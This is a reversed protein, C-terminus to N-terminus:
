TFKYKIKNGTKIGRDRNEKDLEAKYEATLKKRLELLDPIDKLVYTRGSLSYSSHKKVAKIITEVNDLAIKTDSRTELGTTAAELDALIEITGQRDTYKETGKVAKSIWKYIGTTYAATIAATLTVLFEDTSYTAATITIQGASNVFYYELAWGDSAPYDGTLDSRRWKITDGARIETPETLPADADLM